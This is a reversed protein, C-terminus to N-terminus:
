RNPQPPGTTAFYQDFYQDLVAMFIFAGADDPAKQNQRCPDTEPVSRVDSTCGAIDAELPM